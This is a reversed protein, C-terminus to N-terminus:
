RLPLAEGDGIDGGACNVLIEVEGLKEMIEEKM